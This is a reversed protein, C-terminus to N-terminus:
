TRRRYDAFRFAFAHRADAPHDETALIEWVETDFAPFFTDAGELQADVHTLRLTETFPLALEYVQGGGIVVLGADGALAVAEDLTAVPEMGDFPVIGTRTLVLNRRQPLARGLSHATNRGMLVTRGLTLRKFRALDDPLKWPLQNDRGIARNRDMAAILELGPVVTAAEAKV